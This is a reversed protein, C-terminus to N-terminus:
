SIQIKIKIKSFMVSKCYKSLLDRMRSNAQKIQARRQTLLNFENINTYKPETSSYDFPQLRRKSHYIKRSYNKNTNTNTYLEGKFIQNLLYFYKDKYSKSYDNPSSVLLSILQLINQFGSFSLHTGNPYAENKFM